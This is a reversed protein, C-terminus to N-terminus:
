KRKPYEIKLKKYNKSGYINHYYWDKVLGFHLGIGYIFTVIFILFFMLPLTVYFFTKGCLSGKSYVKGELREIRKELEKQKAM